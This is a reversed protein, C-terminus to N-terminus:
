EFEKSVIWYQLKWWIYLSGIPLAAVAYHSQYGIMIDTGLFQFALFKWSLGADMTAVFTPFNLLIPLLYKWWKQHIDAKYIKFLTFLNFGLILVGALKIMLIM